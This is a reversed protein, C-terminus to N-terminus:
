PQSFCFATELKFNKAKAISGFSPVRFESGRVASSLQLDSTFYASRKRVRGTAGLPRRTLAPIMQSSTTLTTGFSAFMLQQCPTEWGFLTPYWTRDGNEYGLQNKATTKKIKSELFIGEGTPLPNPHPFNMFFLIM